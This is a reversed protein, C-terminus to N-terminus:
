SGVALKAHGQGHHYVFALLGALASGLAALVLTCPEPVAVTFLGQSSDAFTAAFTLEGSDLGNTGLSLSVPTQGDLTDHLDVVKTLVDNVDSYIGEQGSAGMGLFAFIHNGSSDPDFAVSGFDTFSGTGGPIATSFDAVKISPPLPTAGEFYVGKFPQGGVTGGGVFALASSETATDMSVSSFFQFNASTGPMTTQTDAM